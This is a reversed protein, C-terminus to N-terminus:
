DQGNKTGARGPQTGHLGITPLPLTTDEEEVLQGDLARVALKVDTVQLGLLSGFEMKSNNIWSWGWALRWIDSDFTTDVDTGTTFIDDGFHIDATLRQDGDRRLNTYSM